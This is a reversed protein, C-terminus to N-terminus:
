EHGFRHGFFIAEDEKLMDLFVAIKVPNEQAAPWYYHLGHQTRGALFGMAKEVGYRITGDGQFDYSIV